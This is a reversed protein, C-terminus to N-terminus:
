LLLIDIRKLCLLVFFIDFIVNDSDLILFLANAKEIVALRSINLEENLDVCIEVFEDKSIGFGDGIDNFVQWLM